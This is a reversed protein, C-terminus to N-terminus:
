LIYKVINCLSRRLRQSQQSSFFLNICECLHLRMAREKGGSKGCRGRREGGGVADGEKKGAVM